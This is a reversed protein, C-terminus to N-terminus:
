NNQSFPNKCDSCLDISKKLENIKKLYDEIKYTKRNNPHINCNISISSDNNIKVLPINRCYPVTCLLEEKM